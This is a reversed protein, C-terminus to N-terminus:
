PYIQAIFYPLWSSNRVKQSMYSQFISEYWGLSIADVIQSVEAGLLSHEHEASSVGDKLPLFVNDRTVAIHIPIQSYEDTSNWLHM